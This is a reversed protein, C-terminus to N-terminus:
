MATDVPAAPVHFATGNPSVIDAVQLRDVHAPSGELVWEWRRGTAGWEEDSTPFERVM